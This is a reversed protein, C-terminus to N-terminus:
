LATVKVSVYKVMLGELAEFQCGALLRSVHSFAKEQVAAAVLVRLGGGPLRGGLGGVQEPHTGQVEALRVGGEGGAVTDQEPDGM